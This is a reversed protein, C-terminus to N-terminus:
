GSPGLLPALEAIAGMPLWGQQGQKWALTERGMRGQATLATLEALDFPGHQQGDLAVWWTKGPLPPPGGNAYPPLPAVGAMQGALGLGVGLGLVSSASGAPTKAAAELAQAAQFRAFQDLNGVLGMSTGKDLAREVEEPLAINEILM